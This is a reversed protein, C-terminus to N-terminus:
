AACDEFLKAGFITGQIAVTQVAGGATNPIQFDFVIVGGRECQVECGFPFGAANIQSFGSQCLAGAALVFDNTEICNTLPNGYTDRIRVLGPFGASIVKEATGLEPFLAARFVWPVDDDLKWGYNEHVQGDIPVMFSFPLVFSELRFGPLPQYAWEPKFKKSPDYFRLPNMM